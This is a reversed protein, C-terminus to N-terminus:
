RQRSLLRERIGTPDFRREVESRVAKAEAQRRSLYEEMEIRHHLYYGIVSYVDALSLVPYQDVIVEASAGDQFAELVTDLTVRTGAIRIGGHADTSMPLTETIEDFSTM